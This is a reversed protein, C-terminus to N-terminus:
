RIIKWVVMTETEYVKQCGSGEYEPTIWKTQLIYAVNDAKLREIAAPDNQYLKTLLERREEREELHTEYFYRDGELYMQREAFTGYYMYNDIGCIVSRDSAIVTNDETNDRVWVLADYDTKQLSDPISEVRNEQGHLMNRIGAKMDAAAGCSGFFWVCQICFLIGAATCIGKQIKGREPELHRLGFAMGPLYTALTYYLQSVGEQANFLGMFLGFGVASMLALDLGDAKRRKFCGAIGNVELLLILPHILLCLELILKGYLALVPIWGRIGGARSLAAEEYGEFLPSARLTAVHSFAGANVRTEEGNMWGVCGIMVFFFVSLILFGNLVAKLPQKKLLWSLCLVGAILLYILAVPAKHGACMLFTVTSLLCGRIRFGPEFFQRSFAAIFYAGFGYAIDFGFPLSVIHAVYNAITVRELGTTFLLALLFFARKWKEQFLVASLSYLGGFLILCKGFPYLAYGLTFVDIGTIMETMALFASAFYHYYLTTGSMRLEAPPFSKTLAAANEIWYLADAHYVVSDGAETPVSHRASYAFFVVILFVAFVAGYFLGDRGAYALRTKGKRQIIVILAAAAFVVAFIWAATKTLGSGATLFYAIVNCAYGLAYSLCFMGIEDDAENEALILAAALGPFFVFFTQYLSFRVCQSLTAGCLIGGLSCLLSLCAFLAPFILINRQRNENEPM